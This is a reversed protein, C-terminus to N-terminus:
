GDEPLRVVLVPKQSHRLVRTTTGGMITDKLGSHGRSGMVIIDCDREISQGIIKDAPNGIEIIIEDAPLPGSPADPRLTKRFRDLVERIPVNDRKKGILIERAEDVHQAKISEWAEAGIHGAIRHELNPIETLVHLIAIQAEYRDALSVAYAFAYRANESLDTAYLIKKIKIDPIIM